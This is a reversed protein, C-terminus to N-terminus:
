ALSDLWAREAGELAKQLRNVEDGLRLAHETDRAAVAHDLVFRASALKDRLATVNAPPDPLDRTRRQPRPPRQQEIGGPAEGLGREVEAVVREATAGADKLVLAGIGQGELAIGMLLHGSEVAPSGTRRSEEFAIEVVRKVRSTPILQKAASRKARALATEISSRVRDAELDLSALARHASGSPLRLLGLLVHETGIYERRAREAEEQALVLARKAEESFREFPYRHAM